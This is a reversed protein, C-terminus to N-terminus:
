SASQYSGSIVFRDNAVGRFTGDYKQIYCLTPDAMYGLMMLGSNGSERGAFVHASAADAAVPLSATWAASATGVATVTFALRFHVTRGIKQYAGSITSTTFGAGAQAGIVPTYPTWAGGTDGTGGMEVPLPVPRSFGSM